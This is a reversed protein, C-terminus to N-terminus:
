TSLRGILNKIEHVDNWGWSEFSLEKDTKNHCPYRGWAVCFFQAKSLAELESGAFIIGNEVAWTVYDHNRFGQLKGDKYLTEGERLVKAKFANEFAFGALTMATLSADSAELDTANTVGKELVSISNLLRECAAQWIIPDNRDDLSAITSKSKIESVEAESAHFRQRHHLLHTRHHNTLLIPKSWNLAIRASDSLRASFVPRGDDEFTVLARDFAADWLASLLLGNHVDLRQADDVCESWPVIHSARLLAPDDIGTLPCRGEWYDMLSDRFINQGIRQVVLREVETTKPLESTQHQFAKFPADPLSSSLQYLRPLVAYLTTLDAFEFRALGPGDMDIATLGLETIVGVHDLALLWSGQPSRAALWITGQATTSSFAAWGNVEDLVRRFGHQWAAKHCEERIVFPQPSLVSM